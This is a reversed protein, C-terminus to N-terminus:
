GTVEAYRRLYFEQLISASTRVDFGADIAKRQADPDRTLPAALIADAWAEPDGLPLYHTNATFAAGRDM